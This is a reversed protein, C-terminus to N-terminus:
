SASRMRRSAAAACRAAVIPCARRRICIGASKARRVARCHRFTIPGTQLEVVFCAASVAAPDPDHNGTIWIWERGRQLVAIAERNIASLRDPGGGDHFSDGLAIVVRPAYHVVLQTLRALTVATDYPPLLQGRAAFSSGKELHLDAVVLLGHEPWYLAGAPDAHLSVGALLTSHRYERATWVQASLASM